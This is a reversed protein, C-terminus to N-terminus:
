NVKPKECYTSVTWPSYLNLTLIRLVIQVPSAEVQTASWGHPCTTKWEMPSSISVFGWLIQHYTARIPKVDSERQAGQRVEVQACGALFFLFILTKKM